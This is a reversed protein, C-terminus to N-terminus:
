RLRCRWDWGSQFEMAERALKRTTPADLSWLTPMGNVVPQGPTLGAFRVEGLHWRHPM